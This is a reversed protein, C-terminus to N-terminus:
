RSQNVGNKLKEKLKVSNEEENSSNREEIIQKAVANVLVECLSGRQYSPVRKLEGLALIKYRQM